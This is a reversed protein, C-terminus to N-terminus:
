ILLIVLTLGVACCIASASRANKEGERGENEMEASLTNKLASVRALEGDRSTTGLSSFFDSIAGKARESVSLGDCAASFDSFSRGAGLFSPDLWKLESTDYRALFDSIPRLYCSIEEYIGDCLKIFFKYESMSRKHCKVYERAPMVCAAFIALIGLYKLM